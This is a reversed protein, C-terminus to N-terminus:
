DFSINPRWGLFKFLIRNGDIKHGICSFNGLDYYYETEGGMEQFWDIQARINGNSGLSINEEAPKNLIHGLYAKIQPETEQTKDIPCEFLVGIYCENWYGHYYGERFQANTPVKINYQEDMLNFVTEADSNQLKTPKEFLMLLRVGLPIAAVMAISILLIILNEHWKHKM